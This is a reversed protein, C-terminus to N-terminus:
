KDYIEDGGRWSTVKIFGKLVLLVHQSGPFLSMSDGFVDYKDHTKLFPPDISQSMNKRIAVGTAYPLEWALPWILAAGTLRCCLWLL